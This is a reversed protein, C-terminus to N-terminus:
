KNLAKLFIINPNAKGITDAPTEAVFPHASQPLWRMVSDIWLASADRTPHIHDKKRDLKMGDTRFFRRKGCMKELMDNIGFDEKWNPPGIWVFPITDIVALIKKVYPVRSEPNKLYLENSGLSIFIQTPHYKNIYYRLTDHEAWIKTNSSDWNVAHITHGNQKAYAALRLALNFTMSDGFIFLSQPVSDVTQEKSATMEDTEPFAALSDALADGGKKGMLTEAFGSKKLKYGGVSIDGEFFSAAMVVALAVALLLWLALYKFKMKELKVGRKCPAVIPQCYLAKAGGASSNRKEKRSQLIVCVGRYSLVGNM